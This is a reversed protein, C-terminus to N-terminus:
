GAAHYDFAPQDSTSEPRLYCMWNDMHGVSGCGCYCPIKSLAQRNAVVFRYAEQYDPPLQRLEPPLVSAPATNLSDGLQDEQAPAAAGCGTVVLAILLFWPAAIRRM